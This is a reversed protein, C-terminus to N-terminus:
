DGMEYEDDMAAEICVECTDLLQGTYADELTLEYGSLLVDCCKRRM